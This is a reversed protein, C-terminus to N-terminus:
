TQLSCISAADLNAFPKPVPLGQAVTRRESRTGSNEFLLTETGWWGWWLPASVRAPRLVPYCGAFDPAAFPGLPDDLRAIVPAARPANGRSERRVCAVSFSIRWSRPLSSQRCKVEKADSE